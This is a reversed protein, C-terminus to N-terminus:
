AVKDESEPTTSLWLLKFDRELEMSFTQKKKKKRIDKIFFLTTLPALIITALNEGSKEMRSLM